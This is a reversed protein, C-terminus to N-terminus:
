MDTTTFKKFHSVKRIIHEECPLDQGNSPDYLCIPAEYQHDLTRVHVLNDPFWDLRVTGFQLGVHILGFTEVPTTSLLWM